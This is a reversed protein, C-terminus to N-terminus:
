PDILQRCDAIFRRMNVDLLSHAEIWARNRPGFEAKLEDCRELVTRLAESLSEPNFPEVVWGTKGHEIIELNGPIANLLPIAGAYRGEAVANSYGDYLPASVFVDTVQWLQIVELRHLLGAEYHFNPFRAALARAKQDLDPQIDYGASLVIFKESRGAELLRTIADLIIGGQYVPKLGRPSLVVRQGEEIGFRRRMAAQVAADPLFREAEVGWRNLRLKAAPQAFGDRMAHLVVLNDATVLAMRGLAQQVLRRYVRYKLANLLKAPLGPPRRNMWLAPPAEARRPPYELIDAGMAIGLVPRRGGARVAWVGYPTINIPNVIDAQIADLARRLRDGSFLFSFMTLRGRWTFRPKVQVSPVAECAQGSFSLVTVRAGAKQLAQSWKETHFSAPDCLVAIHLPAANESLPEQM